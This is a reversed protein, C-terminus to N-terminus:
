ALKKLYLVADGTYPAITVAYDGGPLPRAGPFARGLQPLFWEIAFNGAVECLDITADVAMM